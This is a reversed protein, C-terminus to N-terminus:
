FGPPVRRTLVVADAAYEIPRSAVQAKPAHRDSATSAQVTSGPIPGTSALEQQAFFQQSTSVSELQCKSRPVGQAKSSPIILPRILNVVLLSLVQSEKWGMGWDKGRGNLRPGDIVILTYSKGLPEDVFPDGHRTGSCFGSCKM